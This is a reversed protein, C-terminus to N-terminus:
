EGATAVYPWWHWEHTDTNSPVGECHASTDVPGVAAAGAHSNGPATMPPLLVALGNAALGITHRRRRRRRTAGAAENAAACGVTRGSKRGLWHWVMGHM